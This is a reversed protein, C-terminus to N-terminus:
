PYLRSYKRLHKLWLLAAPPPSPRIASWTRSIRTLRCSAKTVLRSRYINSNQKKWFNTKWFFISNSKEIFPWRPKYPWSPFLRLLSILPLIAHCQIVKHYNIGVPMPVAYAPCNTAQKAISWLSALAITTISIQHGNPQRHYFTPLIVTMLTQQVMTTSSSSFSSSSTMTTSTTTEEGEMIQCPGRRWCM